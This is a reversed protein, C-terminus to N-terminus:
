FTKFVHSGTRSGEGLGPAPVFVLPVRDKQNDVGVRVSDPLEM